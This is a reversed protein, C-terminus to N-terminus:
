FIFLCLIFLFAKNKLIKGLYLAEDSVKCLFFVNRVDPTSFFIYVLRECFLGFRGNLLMTKMELASASVATEGESEIVLM